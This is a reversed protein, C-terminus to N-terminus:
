SGLLYDKVPHLLIPEFSKEVAEAMIKSANLDAPGLDRSREWAQRTPWQAYAVWTGDDVQHLRSGLAGREAIFLETIMAWAQQFQEETGNRIRWQYIVAFGVKKSEVVAREPKLGTYRRKVLESYFM